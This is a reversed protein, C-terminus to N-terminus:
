NTGSSSVIRSYLYDKLIEARKQLPIVQVLKSDVIGDAARLLQLQMGVDPGSIRGTLMLRLPHFLRKGKRKSETSLRKIYQKWGASGCDLPDDPIINEEVDRIVIKMLSEFEDNLIGKVALIESNLSNKRESISLNLLEEEDSPSLQMEALELTELLPYDLISTVVDHIGVTVTLLPQGISVLLRMFVEKKRPLNNQNGECENILISNREQLATELVGAAEEPSLNKIHHSNVWNLKEIDFVAASRVIKEIKFNKILENITYIEQTTGDNWGLNSLYNLMGTPLYGAERFQSVSTAGHRKSLKSRDSALILSCHAYIPHPENFANFLLVQRLTNPLHEEARIVHTIRMTLDDVAVCFNYVPMGNSRLLIFDGLVANADWSVHGRVLDEISVKSNQPIKFRVTYPEGQILKRHVESPSADRWKGNYRSVRGERVADLKMQAVEEDTCFCYFAKGEAVLQEAYKLYISKRESQRYPGFDGGVDPGEDWHLGLWRLDSLISLESEGSSRAQDTDEM